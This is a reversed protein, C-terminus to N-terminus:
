CRTYFSMAWYPFSFLALVLNPAIGISNPLPGSAALSEFRLAALQKRELDVVIKSFLTYVLNFVTWKNMLSYMFCEYFM